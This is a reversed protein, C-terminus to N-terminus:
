RNRTSIKPEAKPIQPPFDLAAPEAWGEALLYAAMLHGVDYHQGSTFRDLRFGDICAGLHIQLIKIRM